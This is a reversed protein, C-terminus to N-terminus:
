TESSVKERENKAKSLDFKENKIDKKTLNRLIFFKVKKSIMKYDKFVLNKNFFLGFDLDIM